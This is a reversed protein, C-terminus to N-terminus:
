ASFGRQVIPNHSKERGVTTAEGHGPLILVDDGLTLIKERIGSILLELSGGPFDVRGMSGAMLTDGVFARRSAPDFFIISDQSHGPVHALQLDLGCVNISDRDKLIEHVPYEEMAFPQGLMMEVFDELRSARTSVEYAFVKAEHEVVLAAAEEVHDFHSHTLLLASLRIKRARLWEGVGEPADVLMWGGAGAFAYANTACFGGTYTLLDPPAM